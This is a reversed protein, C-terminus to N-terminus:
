WPFLDAGIVLSSLFSRSKRDFRDDTSVCETEVLGLRLRTRTSPELSANLGYSRYDDIREDLGTASNNSRDRGDEGWAEVQVRETVRRGLALGWRRSILVNAADLGSYNLDRGGFLTVENRNGLRWGIRGDATPEELDARAPDDYELTRLVASLDVTLREGRYRVRALPGFTSNSRGGPDEPFLTETAQAGVGVVWGRKSTYQVGLEGHDTDRELIALRLGPVQNPAAGSLRTRVSGAAGFLALRRRVELETRLAARADQVDVPVDTESGLQRQREVVGVDGEVILRNFLGFLRLGLSGNLQRLDEQDRWWTYDAVAFGTVIVKPGLNLYGHLGLAAGAKFDSIRDGEEAADYVNDLYALERLTLRPDLRIPGLKWRADAAEDPVTERPQLRPQALSGPPSYDAFQATAPATALALLCLVAAPPLANTM